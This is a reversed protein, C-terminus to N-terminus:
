PIGSYTVRDVSVHQWCRCGHNVGQERLNRGTLPGACVIVDDFTIACPARTAPVEPLRRRESNSIVPTM